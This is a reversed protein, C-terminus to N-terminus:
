MRENCVIRSTYEPGDNYYTELDALMEQLTEDISECDDREIYGSQLFGVNCCDGFVVKDHTVVLEFYHYEGDSDMFEIPGISKADSLDVAEWTTTTSM